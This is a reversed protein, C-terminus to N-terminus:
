SNSSLDSLTLGARNIFILLDPDQAAREVLEARDFGTISEIMHIRMERDDHDKPRHAEWMANLSAAHLGYFERYLPDLVPGLRKFATKDDLHEDACQQVAALMEDLVTANLTRSEEETLELTPIPFIKNVEVDEFWTALGARAAPTVDNFAEFCLAAVCIDRRLRELQSLEQHDPM